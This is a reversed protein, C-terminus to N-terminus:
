ECRGRKEKKRGSEVQNGIREVRIDERANTLHFRIDNRHRDVEEVTVFFATTSHGGTYTNKAQRLSEATQKEGENTEVGWLTGFGDQQSTVGVALPTSFASDFVRFHKDKKKKEIPEEIERQPRREQGADDGDGGVGGEELGSAVETQKGRKRMKIMRM